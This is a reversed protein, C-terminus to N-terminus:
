REIRETAVPSTTSRAQVFRVGASDTVSMQTSAHLELNPASARALKLIAIDQVILADV